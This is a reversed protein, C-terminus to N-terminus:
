PNIDNECALKFVWMFIKLVLGKVNISFVYYSKIMYIGRGVLVGYFMSYVLLLSEIYTKIISIECVFFQNGLLQVLPLSEKSVNM